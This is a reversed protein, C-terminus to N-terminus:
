ANNGDVATREADLVTRENKARAIKALDALGNVRVEHKQTPPTYDSFHSLIMEAQKHDGKAARLFLGNWVMSERGATFIEQRRKRVRDQFNPISKQWDYLTQRSVGISHAFTEASIKKFSGDEEVSLGNAAYFTIYHEQREQLRVDVVSGGRAEDDVHTLNQLTAM